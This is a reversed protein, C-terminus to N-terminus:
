DCPQRHSTFNPLLIVVCVNQLQLNQLACEQALFNDLQLLVKRRAILNDFWALWKEM